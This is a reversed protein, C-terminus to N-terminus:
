PFERRQYIYRIKAIYIMEAIHTLVRWATRGGETSDALAERMRLTTPEEGLDCPLDGVL